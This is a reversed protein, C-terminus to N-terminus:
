IDYYYLVQVAVVVTNCSTIGVAHSYFFYPQLLLKFTIFDPLNPKLKKTDRRFSGVLRPARCQALLLEKNCRKVEQFQNKLDM